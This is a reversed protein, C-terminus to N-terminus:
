NTLLGQMKHFGFTILLLLAGGGGWRGRDLALDTGIRGMGSRSFDM